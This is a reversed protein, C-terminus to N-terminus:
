VKTQGANPLNSASRRELNTSQSSAGGRDLSDSLVVIPLQLLRLRGKEGIEPQLQLRSNCIQVESAPSLTRWANPMM